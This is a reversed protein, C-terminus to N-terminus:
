KNRVDDVFANVPRWYDEANEDFFVNHDAGGITVFRRDGSLREYLARGQAYPVVGDRDGHMLLVPRDFGRLWEATPFRYTGFLSLFALVPNGSFLSKVDPFASELIVGDPKRVTTGYAAIAGGLSRGWYIVKLNPDRVEDWFRALVADTDRYVGQETPSGTSLGYGRYDFGLVTVGLRRVSVLVDLWLSLNGGNGHWYVVQARPSPARLLWAVITEGDSTRVKLAEYAVGAKDPTDQEGRWPHFAMRPEALVVLVKIAILGVVVVIFLKM